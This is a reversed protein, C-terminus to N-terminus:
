SIYKEHNKIWNSNTTIISTNSGADKQLTAAVSDYTPVTFTFTSGKGEHSTVGITGGHSEIIVRCIYLGIGTGAVTERSRHSRYFKHFLNDIVSQPIGIGTDTISVKVFNGDPEAAVIISGDEHSYKIANDILNSLVESLSSCDAAVDPTDSPLNIILQRHQSKARLEMDDQITRYIDKISERELHFQMHQHDFKSANLINNIYGSLRNASVILRQVIERQDPSIKESLEENLSDLYGRIVTIPGRLEHAAFAIFDLDDDEPKFLHTEDYAMIVVETNAGKEYTATVNFIRRADDNIATSPIREWTRQAHVASKQCEKLWDDLTPGTTENFKLQIRMTEDTDMVVPAAKNAYTIAGTSDMLIVGTNVRNLAKSLSVDVAAHPESQVSQHIGNGYIFQLLPKFGTKAYMKANPNALPYLPKEGAASTLASTIDRMPTILLDVAILSLAFITIFTTLIILWFLVTDPVLGSLLLASGILITSLFTFAVTIIHATRQYRPWYDRLQPTRKQIHKVIAM